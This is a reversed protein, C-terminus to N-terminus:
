VRGRTGVAARQWSQVGDILIRGIMANPWVLSLFSYSIPILCPRVQQIVTRAVLSVQMPTKSGILFKASGEFYYYPCAVNLEYATGIGQFAAQHKVQDSYSRGRVWSMIIKYKAKANFLVVYVWKIEQRTRKYKIVKKDDRKHM